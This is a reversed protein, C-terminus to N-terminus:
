VDQNLLNENRIKGILEGKKAAFQAESILGNEYLNKARLFEKEASMLQHNLITKKLGTKETIESSLHGGKQMFLTLLRGGDSQIKRYVTRLLIIGFCVYAISFLINIAIILRKDIASVNNEVHQRYHAFSRLAIAQESPAIYEEIIESWTPKNLEETSIENYPVAFQSAIEESNHLLYYHSSILSIFILLFFFFKKM